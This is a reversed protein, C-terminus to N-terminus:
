KYHTAARNYHISYRERRIAQLYGFLASWTKRLLTDYYYNISKIYNLRYADDYLMLYLQLSAYRSEHVLKLWPAFGFEILLHKMRFNRAKDIHQQLQEKEVGSLTPTILQTLRKKEATKKEKEESIDEM